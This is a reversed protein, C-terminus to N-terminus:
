WGQILIEAKDTLGPTYVRAITSSYKTVGLANANYTVGQPSAVIFYSTASTFTGAPFTVTIVGDVATGTLALFKVARATFTTTVGDHAGTAAIGDAKGNDLQVYPGGFPWAFASGVVFLSIVLVMVFSKKM